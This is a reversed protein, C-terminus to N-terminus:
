KNVKIKGGMTLAIDSCYAFAATLRDLQSAYYAEPNSMSRSRTVARSFSRVSNTVGHNVIQGLAKNFGQLSYCFWRM